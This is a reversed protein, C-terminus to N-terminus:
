DPIGSTSSAGALQPLTLPPMWQPSQTDGPPHWPGPSPSLTGCGQEGGGASSCGQEQQRAPTLSLCEVQPCRTTVEGTCTGLPQAARGKSKSCNWWPFPEMKGEGGRQKGPACPFGAKGSSHPHSQARSGAWSAAPHVRPPFSCSQQWLGPAQPSGVRTLHGRGHQPCRGLTPMHPKGSAAGLSHAWGTHASPPVRRGRPYCHETKLFQDRNTPTPVAPIAPSHPCLTSLSGGPVSLRAPSPTPLM